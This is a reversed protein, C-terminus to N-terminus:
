PFQVSSVAQQVREILETLTDRTYGTVPIPEHFAINVSGKRIQWRGRPMLEFTGRVTVPVIPTGCQLALFFGGRRFPQLRGDWSRMGEPFILFSYRKERILSAARDISKRGAGIGERDLPVYGAFRMGLGLVPIRFVFRKVIVRVPQDLVTVLLPGDLFSLHNSMFVYPTEPELRDLGTAEVDIGLVRRGVRMMWHGYAIFADRLGFLTCVLLVPIAIILLVVYVAVFLVFRM